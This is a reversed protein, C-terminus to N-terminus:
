HTLAGGGHDASGAHSEAKSGKIELESAKILHTAAKRRLKGAQHTANPSFQELIEACLSCNGAKTVHKAAQEKHSGAKHKKLGVKEAIGAAAMRLFSGHLHKEAPCNRFNHGAIGEVKAGLIYESLFGFTMEHLWPVASLNLVGLVSHIAYVLAMHVEPGRVLKHSMAEYTRRVPGRVDRSVRGVREDVGYGRIIETVNSTVERTVCGGIRELVNTKITQKLSKMEEEVAGRVLETLQEDTILYFGPPIPPCDPPCMNPEPPGPAPAPAPSPVSQNPADPSCVEGEFRRAWSFPLALPDPRWDRM